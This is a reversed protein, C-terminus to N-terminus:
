VKEKKREKKIMVGGVSSLGQMESSLYMVVYHPLLEPKKLHRLSQMILGLLSPFNTRWSLVLTFYPFLYSSIM